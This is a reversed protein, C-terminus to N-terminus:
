AVLLVGDPEDGKFSVPLLLRAGRRLPDGRIILPAIFWAPAGEGICHRLLPLREAYASAPIMERMTRGVVNEGYWDRIITGILRCRFEDPEFQEMLMLYPLTAPPLGTPCLADKQPVKGGLRLACWQDFTKKALGPSLADRFSM